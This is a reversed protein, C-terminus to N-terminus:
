VRALARRLRATTLPHENNRTSLMLCPCQCPCTLACPCTGSYLPEYVTPSSTPAPTVPSSQPAPTPNATARVLTHSASAGFAGNGAISAPAGFEVVLSYSGEGYGCCIGDSYVDTITFVSGTPVCLPGTVVVTSAALAGNEMVTAGAPTVVSWATEDPYEDTGVTVTLSVYNAEECARGECAMLMLAVYGLLRAM